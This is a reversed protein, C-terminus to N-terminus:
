KDGGFLDRLAPYVDEPKGVTATNINKHQQELDQYVTRLSDRNKYQGYIDIEIYVFYQLKSLLDQATEVATNTDHLFNDGDSAQALYINTTSLDYEEDIIDSVKRLGSSVVTGGTKTGHFFEHEDVEDADQTHRIFRLTIKEYNKELFLYLLLFFRKALDKEKEGMSYSVDMLCFMVAEKVPFPQKTFYKYRLDINDIYQESGTAIRRALAQKLSKMVDLRPPIGERSYGHRKWKMKDSGKLSEKIFAPLEMDSFYLDLFEDKTLTFTFEDFGEGSDGAGSEQVEKSNHDIRDGKQLTKNGTLVHKGKGRSADHKFSPESMDRKSITVETNDAIDTISKDATKDSVKEKIFKKYRKIFRQRNVVSKKKGSRRDIISM